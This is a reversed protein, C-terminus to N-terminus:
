KEEPPQHNIIRCICKGATELMKRDYEDLPLGERFALGRVFGGALCENPTLKLVKKLRDIEKLWKEEHELVSM